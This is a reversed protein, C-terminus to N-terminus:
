YITPKQTKTRNILLFSEIQEVCSKFNDILMFHGADPIQALQIKNELSNIKEKSKNGYIYLKRRKLELFIHLLKRSRSWDVISLSSKYFAYDPILTLWKARIMELLLTGVMGGMSHGIIQINRLDLSTIIEQCILAQDMLDYSFTEPKSSNGFGVFDILLLSYNNFLPRSVLKHFM